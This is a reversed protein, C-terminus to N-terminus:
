RLPPPGDIQISARDALRYGIGRITTILDDGVKARVRRIHVDVTRGGTHADLWVQALLQPRTFVHRPHEALFLLLDFERRTLEVPMQGKYVSRSWPEIVVPHSLVVSLHPRPLAPLVRALATTM